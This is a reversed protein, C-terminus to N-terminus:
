LLEPLSLGPPKPEVCNIWFNACSAHYQHGGYVLKYSDLEADFAKSRAEVNLLCVGCALQKANRTGARLVCSSFDLASEDPKLLSVTATSLSLFAMLNHWVLEIEKLLGQLEESCVAAAKIGLEVRKAVRYVEVVGTLYEMGQESQIVETCVASSSIGNLVTNAKKIVEKASKLCRRWEYAYRESEEVEGTLDKYKDRIIPFAPKESLTNSRERPMPQPEPAAPIHGEKEDLSLSRKHTAGAQVTLDFTELESRIMEESSRVRSQGAVALFDFRSARRGEEKVGDELQTTPADEKKSEQTSAFDGFEDEAGVPETVIVTEGAGCASPLSENSSATHLAVGSHMPKEAGMFFQPQAKRGEPREIKQAHTKHRSHTTVDQHESWDYGTLSSTGSSEGGFSGFPDFRMEELDTSNQLQQGPNVTAPLDLSSDSTVHRLDALSGSARPESSSLSAVDDSDDRGALVGALPPLELSKVSGSDERLCLRAMGGGGVLAPASSTAPAVAPASSVSLADDSDDRGVSPLELSKVSGTDERMNFRLAVPTGFPKSSQTADPLPGQLDSFEYEESGVMAIGLSGKTPDEVAQPTDQALQRFISYKDEAEGQRPLVERFDKFAPFPSEEKIQIQENGRFASFSTFDAFGDSSAKTSGDKAESILPPTATDSRHGVASVSHSVQSPPFTPFGSLQPADWVPRTPPSEQFCDATLSGGMAASVAAATIRSPPPNISSPPADVVGHFDAFDESNATPVATVVPDEGSVVIANAAAASADLSRFVSYKDSPDPPPEPVAKPSDEIERFVAYKDSGSLAPVASGPASSPVMPTAWSARTDAPIQPGAAQFDGFGEPSSASASQFDQFDDIETSTVQMGAFSGIVSPASSMTSSNPLPGSAGVSMHAPSHTASLPLAPGGSTSRGTIPVLQPALGQTSVSAHAPSPTAQMGTSGPINLTPVPPTPFQGLSELSVMSAGRQSIAVLALVMYLEEKSLQGPLTRNALAWIHGLTERPLGSSLLIPYLKSTDIGAPCMSSELVKRYVDPVLSDSFLWAPLLPQLTDQTSFSPAVSTPVQATPHISPPASIPRNSDNFSHSSASLSYSQTSSPPPLSADSVAPVGHNPYHISPEASMTPISAIPGPLFAAFDGTAAPALSVAKPPPLPTSFHSPLSGHMSTGGGFASSPGPNQSPILIQSPRGPSSAPPHSPQPQKPVDTKHPTSPHQIKAQRTFGAINGMIAELADDRKDVAKLKSSSMLRLKHKQEEFQRRKRDQEERKRQEKMMRQQEEALKQQSVAYTPPSSRIQYFPQQQALFQMGGSQVMGMPIGGQMCVAGQPSMHPAMQGGYAMGMGGMMGAQMQVGPPMMYGGGQSPQLGPGVGPAQTSGMAGVPFMFNGGGGGGAAGGGGGGGGSGGQYAM